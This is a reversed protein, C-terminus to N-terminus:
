ELVSKLRDLAGRMFEGETMGREALYQKITTYRTLDSLYSLDLLPRLIEVGHLRDAQSHHLQCLPLGNEVDYRTLKFVRHVYHHVGTAPCDCVPWVCVNGRKARVARAWYKIMTRDSLARM